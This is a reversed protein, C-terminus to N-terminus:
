NDPRGLLSWHVGSRMLSGGHALRRYGYFMGSARYKRYLSDINEARFVQKSKTDACRVLLEFYLHFVAGVALDKRKKPM